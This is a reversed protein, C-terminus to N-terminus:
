ILQQFLVSVIDKRCYRAAEANMPPVATTGGVKLMTRDNPVLPILHYAFNILGMIRGELAQKSAFHISYFCSLATLPTMVAFCILDRLVVWPSGAHMAWYFFQSIGTAQAVTTFRHHCDECHDVNQTNMWHELCSVHLLSMNGSCKCLSVLCETQDGKHCIRCIPTSGTTVNLCGASFGPSSGSFKPNSEFPRM